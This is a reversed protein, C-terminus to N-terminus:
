NFIEDLNIIKIEINNDNCFKEQEPTLEPAIYMIRNGESIHLLYRKMQREFKNYSPIVVKLEIYLLINKCDRFILDGRYLTDGLNYESNIFRLNPEIIQSFKILLRQLFQELLHHNRQNILLNLKNEIRHLYPKFCNDFKDLTIDHAGHFITEIIQTKYVFRTNDLVWLYNEYDDALYGYKKRLYEIMFDSLQYFEKIFKQREKIEEQNPQNKKEEPKKLWGLEEDIDFENEMDKKSEETMDAKSINNNNNGTNITRKFGSEICESIVYRIFQSVSPFKNEEAYKEWEEKEKDYLRIRTYAERKPM